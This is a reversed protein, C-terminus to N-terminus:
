YAFNIMHNNPLSYLGSAEKQETNVRLFVNMTSVETVRKGSYICITVFTHELPKNPLRNLHGFRKKKISRDSKNLGLPGWRHLKTAIGSSMYILPASDRLM